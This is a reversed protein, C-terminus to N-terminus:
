RTVNNNKLKSIIEDAALPALAEIARKKAVEQTPGIGKLNRPELAAPAQPIGSGSSRIVKGSMTTEIAWQGSVPDRTPISFDLSCVVILEINQEKRVEEVVQKLTAPLPYGVNTIDEDLSLSSEFFSGDVVGAFGKDTLQGMLGTGFLDKSQSDSEWSTNDALEIDLESITRSSNENSSEKIKLAGEEAMETASENNTKDEHIDRRVGGGRSVQTSRRVTFFVAIQQSSREVVAQLIDSRNLLDKLENLDFKGSITAHVMKQQSVPTTEVKVDSIIKRVQEERDDDGVIREAFQQRINDSQHQLAKDIANVAANRVAKKAAEGVAIPKGSPDVTKADGMGRVEIIQGTAGIM